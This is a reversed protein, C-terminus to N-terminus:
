SAELAKDVIVSTLALVLPGILVGLAGLTFVGGIVGIMMIAPHVKAKEGMLKPRLLNDIGGVVVFSYIFLGIGRLMIGQSNQFLGDLFLFISAPVWVIGTGLYPFLATFSMVLGWFLPSSIGFMFFGLGGLLGQLLAVLLYGYIIGHVIEKLRRLIHAYKGEHMSLYGSVRSVLKEGDKLFYFMTFFVVFLSIILRPLSILFHSGKNVIWTTLSKMMEQVQFYVEPNKGFEKLSLCFTNTCNTFLGVALKQKVLIFLAFSEQILTKIFFIAPVGVVLLVLTCLLFSAASKNKIKRVIRKYVPFFVYALFAGMFLSLLLPRVVVFGVVLLLTFLTVNV